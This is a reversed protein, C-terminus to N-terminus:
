QSLTKRYALHAVVEEVLAQPARTGDLRVFGAKAAVGEFLRSTRRIFEYNDTTPNQQERGAIRKLAIDVPTDLWFVVDPKLLTEFLEAFGSVDVGFIKQNVLHSWLYRDSLVVEGRDLAPGIIERSAVALRYSGHAAIFDLAEGQSDKWGSRGMEKVVERVSLVFSAEPPVLPRVVSVTRGHRELEAAVGEVLSTKGSGDVGCFVAFLGKAKTRTLSFLEVHEETPVQISRPPCM